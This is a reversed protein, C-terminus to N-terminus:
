ESSFRCGINCEQPQVALPVPQARCGCPVVPGTQMVRPDEVRFNPVYCYGPGMAAGEALFPYAIPEDVAEDWLGGSCVQGQRFQCKSQDALCDAKPPEQMYVAPPIDHVAFVSHRCTMGNRGWDAFTMRNSMPNSLDM